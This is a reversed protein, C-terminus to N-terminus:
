HKPLHFRKGTIFEGWEARHAETSFAAHCHGEAHAEYKHKDSEENTKLTIEPVYFGPHQYLTKEASDIRIICNDLIGPGFGSRIPILLPLKLPGMSRGVNGIVENEDMWSKGSANGYFLRVVTKDARCKELVAIVEGSTTRDVRTGNPETRGVHYATGNVLRYHLISKDRLPYDVLETSAATQPPTM